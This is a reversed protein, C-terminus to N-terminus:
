YQWNQVIQGNQCSTTSNDTIKIQMERPVLSTSWREPAQERKTSIRPHTETSVRTESGEIQRVYRLAVLSKIIPFLTCSFNRLRQYFLHSSLYFPPRGAGRKTSKGFNWILTYMWSREPYHCHHPLCSGLRLGRPHGRDVGNEASHKCYADSWQQLWM